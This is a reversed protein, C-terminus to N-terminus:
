HRRRHGIGHGLSIQHGGGFIGSGYLPEYGHGFAMSGYYGIGYRQHYQPAYPAYRYAARSGSNSYYPSHGGYSARSSAAVPGYTSCASLVISFALLLILKM